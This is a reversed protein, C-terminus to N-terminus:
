NWMLPASSTAWFTIGSLSSGGNSFFSAHPDIKDPTCGLTDALLERLLMLEASAAPAAADSAQSRETGPSLLTRDLKGNRSLPFREILHYRSPAMYAPLVATVEERIRREAQVSAKGAETLTIYAELYPTGNGTEDRCLVCAEAVLKSSKLAFEVDGLEVRFGQLKM